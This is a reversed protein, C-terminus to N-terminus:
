IGRSTLDQGTQLYRLKSEGLQTQTWHVERLGGRFCDNGGGSGLLSRLFGIRFSVGEGAGTTSEEEEIVDEGVDVGLRSPVRSLNVEGRGVM